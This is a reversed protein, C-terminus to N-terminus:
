TYDVVPVGGDVVQEGGDQVGYNELESSSSSSMNKIISSSSEGSVSSSSSSYNLSSSSSSSSYGLSSTSSTSSSSSNSSKSSSSSSSRHEFVSSSSSSSSGLETSIAVDTVRWYQSTGATNQGRFAVILWQKACDAATLTFAAAYYTWVAPASAADAGAFVEVIGVGFPYGTVNLSKLNGAVGIYVKSHGNVYGASRLYRYVIYYTGPVAPTNFWQFMNAEGAATQLTANRRGSSLANNWSPITEWLQAYVYGTHFDPAGTDYDLPNNFGGDVLGQYGSLSSSSSSNLEPWTVLHNGVNQTNGCQRIGLNNISM